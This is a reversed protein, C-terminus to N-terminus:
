TVERVVTVGFKLARQKKFERFAERVRKVPVRKLAERNSEGRKREGKVLMKVLQDTDGTVDRDRDIERFIAGRITAKFIRRFAARTSERRKGGFLMRRAKAVDRLRPVGAGEFPVKRHTLGDVGRFQVRIDLTFAKRGRRQSDALADALGDLTRSGARTPSVLRTSGVRYRGPKLKDRPLTKLARDFAAM